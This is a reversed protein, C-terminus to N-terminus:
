DFVLGFYGPKKGMKSLSRYMAFQRNKGPMRVRGAPFDLMKILGPVAEADGLFEPCWLEEGDATVAAIFNEGKYFKAMGALFAMNEGEQIVGGAPLFTRRLRAFEAPDIKRVPIPNGAMAHFETVGSCPAFGMGAYMRILGPKQPVLVAGHYGAATLVEMTEEMLMRCLGRGRCAPDTAVAYIYALKADECTCDFWYLAAAIEGNEVVCRCRHPAYATSFFDDLFDDTDGFAAQWLRRLGPIQCEAPATTNM